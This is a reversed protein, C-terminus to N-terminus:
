SFAATPRRAARRRASFARRRRRLDGDERDGPRRLGRHFGRQHPLAPGPVARQGDGDSRRRARRPELPPCSSASRGTTAAPIRAARPSLDKRRRRCRSSESPIRTASSPESWTTSRSSMAPPSRARRGFPRRAPCGRRSTSSPFPRSRRIRTTSAPTPFFSSPARSMVWSRFSRPPRFRAPHGRRAPGAVLRIAFNRIRGSVTPTADAVTSPGSVTPRSARSPPRAFPRCGLTKGYVANIPRQPSGTRDHLLVSTGDPGTLTLSLSGRTTTSSRSWRRRRERRIGAFGTSGPPRSPPARATRCGSGGRRRVSRLRVRCARVATLTDLRPTWLGNRPDAVAKGTARLLGAVASPSLEPRAQRLLAVAGAM